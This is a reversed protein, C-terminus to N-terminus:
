TKLSKIKLFTQCKQEWCSFSRVNRVISGLKIMLHLLIKMNEHKPRKLVTVYTLTCIFRYQKKFSLIDREREREYIFIWNQKMYGTRCYFYKRLKIKKTGFQEILIDKIDKITKKFALCIVFCSNVFTIFYLSFDKKFYVAINWCEHNSCVSTSLIIIVCKHKYKYQHKDTHLKKTIDSLLWHVHIRNDCPIHIIFSKTM